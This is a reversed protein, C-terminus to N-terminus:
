IGWNKIFYKWIQPFSHKFRFWWGRREKCMKTFRESHPPYASKINRDCYNRWQMDFSHFIRHAEGPQQKEPLKTAQEQEDIFKNLLCQFYRNHKLECDKYIRKEARRAARTSM